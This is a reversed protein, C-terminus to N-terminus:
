CIGVYHHFSTKKESKLGKCAIVGKKGLNYMQMNMLYWLMNLYDKGM